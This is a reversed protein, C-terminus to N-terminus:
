IWFGPNGKAKMNKLEPLWPKKDHKNRFSIDRKLLLFWFGETLLERLSLTQHKLIGDEQKEEFSSILNLMIRSLLGAVRFRGIENVKGM